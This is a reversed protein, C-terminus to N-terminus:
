ENRNRRESRISIGTRKRNSICQGFQSKTFDSHESGVNQRAEPLDITTTTTADRFLSSGGGVVVTASAVQDLSRRTLSSTTTTASSYINSTKPKRRVPAHDSSTTFRVGVSVGAGAGDGNVM